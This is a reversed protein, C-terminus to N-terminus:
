RAPVCYGEKEGGFSNWRGSPLLLKVCAGRPDGSFKPKIGWPKCAEIIRLAAQEGQEEQGPRLEGNCANTAIRQITAANRLILRALNVGDEPRGTIHLKGKWNAVTKRHAYEGVIVGIFEDREKQYSM